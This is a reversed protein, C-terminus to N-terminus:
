KEIITAGKPTPNKNSIKRYDNCGKPTPNKHNTKAIIM